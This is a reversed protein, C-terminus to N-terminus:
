NFTYSLRVKQTLITYLLTLPQIEPRLSGTYFKATYGGGGGEREGERGEGKRIYSM